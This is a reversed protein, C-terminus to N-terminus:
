GDRQPLSYTAKSIKQKAQNKINEINKPINKKLTRNKTVNIEKENLKM